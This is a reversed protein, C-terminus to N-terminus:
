RLDSPPFRRLPEVCRLLRHLERLSVGTVKESVERPALARASYEPRKAARNHLCSEALATSRTSPLYRESTSPWDRPVM